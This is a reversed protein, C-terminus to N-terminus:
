RQRARERLRDLEEMSYLRGRSVVAAIDSVADIDALPDADLVLLDARAGETIAGLPAASLGHDYLFTGPTGTAAALAEATTLGAEVLRALELHASTGPFLGVYSADTGLLLPVGARQFAVTLEDLFAEKALERRSFRELDEVTEAFGGTRWFRQVDPELHEFEPDRWLADISDLQTRTAAVFSLNPIVATGADLLWGTVRDVDETSRWPIRGLDLLSDVGAHFYTFFVEEGHAIVDLGSTLAAQLATSRDDPRPVHGIVPMGLRHAEDVLPGLLDTPLRNYVKILDYGADSQARVAVLTEAEDGVAVSVGPNLPPDGDIIPGSAYLTPGVRQGTDLERRYQLIDPAGGLGGSLQVVTTVGHRLYSLLESTSRLHVHFDILGPLLYKGALSVYRADEPVDVSGAAGVSEIAGDRILVTQGPVSRGTAPDVITVSDLALPEQARTVSPAVLWAVVVVGVVLGRGPM